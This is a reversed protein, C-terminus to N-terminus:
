ELFLLFKCTFANDTSCMNEYAQKQRTYACTKKLRKYDYAHSEVRLFIRAFALIKLFKRTWVHFEFSAYIIQTRMCTKLSNRRRCANELSVISRIDHWKRMGASNWRILWDKNRKRPYTWSFSFFIYNCNNNNPQQKRETRCSAKTEGNVMVTTHCFECDNLGKQSWAYTQTWEKREAVCSFPSNQIVVM